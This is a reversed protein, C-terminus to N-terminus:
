QLYAKAQDVALPDTLDLFFTGSVDELLREAIQKGELEIPLEALATLAHEDLDELLHRVLLQQDTPLQTFVMKLEGDLLDLAENRIVQWRATDPLFGLKTYTYAYGTASVAVSSLGAGQGIEMLTSLITKVAKAQPELDGTMFDAHTLYYTGSYPDLVTGVAYRVDGMIGRVNVAMEGNEAFKLASKLKATLLEQPSRNSLKSIMEVPNLGVYANWHKVQDPTATVGLEQFTEETTTQQPISTEVPEPPLMKEDHIAQCMTRCGPHFPPIHLGRETLQSASLKSLEALNAKTQKPWPQVTKLDEPNQVHLVELVKKRADAVEFVKGNIMRCFESTRGDLVANLKYRTIGRVEAEATFGWTALRSTNLSAIMRLNDHGQKDFSVFKTVFRGSTDAKHLLEKFKGAKYDYDHRLTLGVKLNPNKLIRDINEVSDTLTQIWAPVTKRKLESYTSEEAKIKEIAKALREREETLSKYAGHTMRIESIDTLSVPGYVLEEHEMHAVILENGTKDTAVIAAHSETPRKLLQKNPITLRIGSLEGRVSYHPDRTWSSEGESSLDTYGKQLTWTKDNLVGIAGFKSIGKIGDLSTFHHLPYTGHPDYKPVDKEEVAHEKDTFRGEEDHHSSAKSPPMEAVLKGGSSVSTEHLPTARDKSTFKGGDDHYPNFKQVLQAAEDEAILQLVERQVQATASHELYTLLNAVVQNLTDDFNGTSVFLPKNKAVQGAGFVACSRLLFKIWERNETGVETLDLDRTLFRAKAWQRDKCASVIAELIPHSRREWDKVLRRILATELSLYVRLDGTRPM